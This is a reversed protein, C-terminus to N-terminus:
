IIKRQQAKHVIKLIFIIFIHQLAIVVLQKRPREPLSHRQQNQVLRAVPFVQGVGKARVGGAGAELARGVRHIDRRATGREDSVGFQFRGVTRVKDIVGDEELDGDVSGIENIGSGMLDINELLPLFPVAAVTASYTVPM